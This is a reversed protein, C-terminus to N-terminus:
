LEAKGRPIARLPHRAVSADGSRRGTGRHPPPGDPRAALRLGRAPTIDSFGILWKPQQRFRTFDLKDVLHVAGYGGRSCFIARAKPDDMAEQLDKLRQAVSGAYTGHSSGAHSALVPELGWSKLRRAAGRLFAKDIKSSPSLIIVRDGERLRPPYILSEMNLAKARLHVCKPDSKPM